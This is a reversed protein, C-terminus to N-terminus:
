YVVQNNMSLRYHLSLKIDVNFPMQVVINAFTEKKENMEQVNETGLIKMESFCGASLDTFKSGDIKQIHLTLQSM